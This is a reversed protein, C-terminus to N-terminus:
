LIAHDIKMQAMKKYTNVDINEARMRPDIIDIFEPYKKLFAHGLNKRRHLFADHLIKSLTDFYEHYETPHRNTNTHLNLEILRSQVTPKPHFNGPAIRMHLRVDFFAQILVSLSSYEKTSISATIRQGVEEQIVFLCRSMSARCIDLIIRTAINYPLNGVVTKISKAAMMTRWDMKLADALMWDYNNNAHKLEDLIHSFQSDIEISIVNVSSAVLYKTLYGKGPGIEIIVGSPDRLDDNDMCIEAIRQLVNTNFLFNQGFRKQPKIINTNTQDM